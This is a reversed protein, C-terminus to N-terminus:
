FIVVENGAVVEESIRVLVSLVLSKLMESSALLVSIVDEERTTEELVVGKILLLLYAVKVVLETTKYESSSVGVVSDILGLALMSNLLAEVNQVLEIDLASGRVVVIAVWVQCDLVGVLSSVVCILLEGGVVKTLVGVGIPLVWFPKLVLLVFLFMWPVDNGKVKSGENVVLKVFVM